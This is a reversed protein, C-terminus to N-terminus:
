PVTKGSEERTLERGQMDRGYIILAKGDDEPVQVKATLIAGKPPDISVPHWAGLDQWAWDCQIASDKDGPGNLHFNYIQSFGLAPHRCINVALVTDVEPPLSIYDQPKPLCIDLWGKWAEFEGKNAVLMVADHLWRFFLEDSCAGVIRKGEDIIESVTIM